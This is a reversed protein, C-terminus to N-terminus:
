ILAVRALRGMQRVLWGCLRARNMQGRHGAEAHKLSLRAMWRASRRRRLQLMGRATELEVARGVWEPGTGADLSSASDGKSLWAGNAAKGVLRHAVWVNGQRFLVIDGLHFDSPAAGEIWLWDGPRVLPALSGTAIRVRVREGRALQEQVLAHVSPHIM